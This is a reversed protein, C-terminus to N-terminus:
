TRAETACILIFLSVAFAVASVEGLIYSSGLTVLGAASALLALLSGLLVMVFAELPHASGGSARIPTIRLPCCSALRSSRPESEQVVLHHRWRHYNGRHDVGVSPRPDHHADGASPREHHRAHPIRRNDCRM